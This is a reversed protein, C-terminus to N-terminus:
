GSAAPGSSRPALDVPQGAEPADYRCVYLVIAETGVTTGGDVYAGLVHTVLCPDLRFWRVGSATAAAPRRRGLGRSGAGVGFPVRRARRTRSASCADTPSEIFVVHGATVGIDHQWTARELQSRGPRRAPGRRRGMRRHAALRGRARRRLSGSRRGAGRDDVSFLVRCGDAAVRHVHSAIPVPLGGGFEEPELFAYYQSPLGTEPLALVSGAHWFM